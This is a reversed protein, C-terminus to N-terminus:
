TPVRFTSIMGIALAPRSPRLVAFYGPRKSKLAWAQFASAERFVHLWSPERPMGSSSTTSSGSTEMRAPTAPQVELRSLQKLAVFRHSGFIPRSVAPQLPQMAFCAASLGGVMNWVLNELHLTFSRHM